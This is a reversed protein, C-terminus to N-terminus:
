CPATKTVRSRWSGRGWQAHLARLVDGISTEGTIMQGESMAPAVLDAHRVAVCARGHPWADASLKRRINPDLSVLIGRRGRSKWWVNVHVACKKRRSLLMGPFAGCLRRQHVGVDLESARLLSGM